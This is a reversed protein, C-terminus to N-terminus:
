EKELKKLMMRATKIDREQSSKDGGLLLLVIEQQRITYYLRYGKGFSFRLEGIDGFWKHDGFNGEAIRQLRVAIRLVLEKPQKKVWKQYLGSKAIRYSKMGVNDRAFSVKDLM